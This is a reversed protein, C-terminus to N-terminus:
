LKDLFYKMWKAKFQDFDIHHLKQYRLRLDTAAERATTEEKHLKKMQEFANNTKAMIGDGFLCEVAQRIYQETIRYM